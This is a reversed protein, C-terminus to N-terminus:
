SSSSKPHISEGEVYRAIIFLLDSLRNLIRQSDALHDLQLDRRCRVLKRESRRCITRAIDLKSSLINQGPIVFSKPLPVVDLLAKQWQEIHDLDDPKPHNLQSYLESTPQTAIESCIDFLLRQIQEVWAELPYPANLHPEHIHIHAKILGLHSNLEDLDGLTEFHLDDKPFREGSYLNSEGHDGKRTTVM